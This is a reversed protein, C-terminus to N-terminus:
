GHKAKMAIATQYANLLRRYYVDGSYEQLAKKRGAQGMQRCLDPNAWLFKIKNALEEANGAEFHLGTVEDAVVETLGGIRSSIVPIGQAMAEAAVLGFPEFWVSPTVIFRAHRYFAPLESRELPGLFRVNNPAEGLLEPMASYDGAIHVPVSPNIAAAQLLERVGKEPSIRGIYGVYDGPSYEPPTPQLLSVSIM